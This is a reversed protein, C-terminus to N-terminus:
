NSIDFLSDSPAYKSVYILPKNLKNYGNGGSDIKLSTIRGQTISDISVRAGSGVAKLVDEPDQVVDVELFEEACIFQIIKKGNIPIINPSDTTITKGDSSIRTVRVLPKVYYAKSYDLTEDSNVAYYAKGYFVNKIKSSINDSISFKNGDNALFINNNIRYPLYKDDITYKSVINSAKVKENFSNNDLDVM